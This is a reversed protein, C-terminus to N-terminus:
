PFEKVKEQFFAVHYTRTSKLCTELGKSAGSDAFANSLTSPSSHHHGRSKPVLSVSQKKRLSSISSQECKKGTSDFM